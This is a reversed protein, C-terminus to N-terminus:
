PNNSNTNQLKFQKIDPKEVENTKTNIVSGAIVYALDKRIRIFFISNDTGQLVIDCYGPVAKSPIIGLITYTALNHSILYEKIASKDMCDSQTKNTIKEPTQKTTVNQNAFGLYLFGLFVLILKKMFNNYSM